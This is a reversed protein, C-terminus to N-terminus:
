RSVTPIVYRPHVSAAIGRRSSSGLRCDSQPVAHQSSQLSWIPILPGRPRCSSRLRTPDPDHLPSAAGVQPAVLQLGPKGGEAVIAEIIKHRAARGSDAGGYHRRSGRARCEPRLSLRAEIEPLDPKADLPLAVASSAVAVIALAAEASNPIAVVIQARSDFGAQRLCASTTSRTKSSGIRSPRLSLLSSQRTRRLAAHARITEGITRPESSGAGKESAAAPRPEGLRGSRPPALEVDNGSIRCWSERMVMEGRLTSGVANEGAYPIEDDDGPTDLWERSRATSRWQVAYRYCGAM